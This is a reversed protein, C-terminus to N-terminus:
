DYDFDSGFLLPMEAGHVEKYLQLVDEKTLKRTTDYDVKLYFDGKHVKIVYDDLILEYSCRLSYSLEIAEDIITQGGYTKSKIYVPM